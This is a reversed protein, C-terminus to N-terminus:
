GGPLFRSASVDGTTRAGRRGRPNEAIAKVSLMAAQITYPYTVIAEKLEIATVTSARLLASIASGCVGVAERCIMGRVPFALRIDLSDPM